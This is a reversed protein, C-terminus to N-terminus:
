ELSNYDRLLYHGCRMIMSALMYYSSLFPMWYNEKKCVKYERFFFIKKKKKRVLARTCELLRLRNFALANRLFFALLSSRHNSIDPVCKLSLSQTWHSISYVWLVVIRLTDDWEQHETSTFVHMPWVVKRHM